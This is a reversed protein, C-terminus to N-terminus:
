IKGYCLFLGGEANMRRFVEAALLRLPGCYVGSKSTKFRQLAEYTKGSNTPGLISQYVWFRNIYTVLM